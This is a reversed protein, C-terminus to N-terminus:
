DQRPGSRALSSALWEKRLIAYQMTNEYIPDGNADSTFSVYEVFLGEERMGLRECLRRSAANHDEVYAYLRRVNRVTLLDDFLARAAEFAYGQGGFDPNFNWGVGFTDGEDMAFLDGIMQGTDKLCVAINEGSQSRKEAEAEAADLSDLKLSLFCSAVPQKLYAFLDAADTKRFGRLVLRETEIADM